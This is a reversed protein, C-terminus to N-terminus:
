QGNAFNSHTPNLLTLKMDVDTTTDNEFENPGIKKGTAPIILKSLNIPQNIQLIWVEM